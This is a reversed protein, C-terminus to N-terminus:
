YGNLTENLSKIEEASSAQREGLLIDSLIDEPLMMSNIYDEQAQSELGTFQAVMLRKRLDNFKIKYGEAVLALVTIAPMAMVESPSQGPYFSM